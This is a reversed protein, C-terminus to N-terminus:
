GLVLEGPLVDFQGYLDNTSMKYANLIVHIKRKCDKIAEMLAQQESGILVSKGNITTPTSGNNITQSFEGTVTLSRSAAMRNEGDANSLLADLKCQLDLGRSLIRRLEEILGAPEGNDALFRDERDELSVLRNYFHGSRELASVPLELFLVLSKRFAYDIYKLESMNGGSIKKMIVM